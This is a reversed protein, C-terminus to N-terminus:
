VNSEASLGPAGALLVGWISPDYGIAKKQIEASVGFASMTLINVSQM